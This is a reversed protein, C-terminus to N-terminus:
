AVVEVCDAHYSGSDQSPSRVWIMRAKPEIQKGCADCTFTVDGQAQNPVADMKQNGNSARSIVKRTFAVPTSVTPKDDMLSSSLLDGLSARELDRVIQSFELSQKNRCARNIPCSVCVQSSGTFHGFCPTAKAAVEVIFPDAHYTDMGTPYPSITLSVGDMAVSEMTESLSVVEPSSFLTKAKNVGAKTLAWKGRAGDQAPALGKQKLTKYAYQIKVQVIPRGTAQDAGYQNIDNIGVLGACPTYVEDHLVKVEAKGKTLTYLTKLLPVLFVSATLTQLGEGTPTEEDM